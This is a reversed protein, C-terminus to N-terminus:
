EVGTQDGRPSLIAKVFCTLPPKRMPTGIQRLAAPPSDEKLALLYNRHNIIHTNATSRSLGSGSRCAQTSLTFADWVPVPAYAMGSM